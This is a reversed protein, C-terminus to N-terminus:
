SLCMFLFGPSHVHLFNSLLSPLKIISTENAVCSKREGDEFGELGYLKLSLEPLLYGLGGLAFSPAYLIAAVIDPDGKGALLMCVPFLILCTVVTGFGKWFGLRKFDKKYCTKFFFFFCPLSGYAVIKPTELGNSVLALYSMIAIGIESFGNSEAALENLSGREITMGLDKWYTVSDAARLVGHIALDTAGLKTLGNKSIVDSVGGGGRIRDLAKSTHSSLIAGAPKHLAGGQPMSSSLFIAVVAVIALKM